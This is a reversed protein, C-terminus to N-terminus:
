SFPAESAANSGDAPKVLTVRYGMRELRRVLKNTNHKRDLKDLYSLGLDRYPEGTALLHYAVILLKHAIAMAARKAGRRARLRYYKTRFYSDKTRAAAIAAEILATRLHPNGKRAPTRGRRGASENNSPAVGAWAAAHRPSLFVAMDVGLEAILVVAVVKSIGPVQMLLEYQTRYPEIRVEILADIESIEQDFLDVRHLQRQILSCHLEDLRADLALELQAIKRRLRGRALQAVAAPDQTGQLLADLMRRGSVGFVNSAVSALKIGATELLGLIRNCEATRAEVLKRRFRTLRRLERIPKPPVFSPAILAHRLLDALWEADKVDTKRGPVHKIHHANGVVVEFHDELVAHIPMWYIGTSEMGVHTCEEELLWDRLAELDKRFTGFRRIERRVKGGAKGILLCAVVLAQGIDLGCCREHVVRM